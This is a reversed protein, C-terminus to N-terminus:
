QRKRAPMMTIKGGVKTDKSISLKVDVDAIFSAPKGSSPQGEFRINCANFIVTLQTPSGQVPRNTLSIGGHGGPPIVASITCNTFTDTGNRLLLNYGYNEELLMNEAVCTVNYEGHCLGTSNRRSIFDRVVISCDEHASIGDDGCETATIHEFTVDEAHGHINFGDNIVHEININKIIWHNCTDGLAVGNQRTPIEINYDELKRNPDIAIYFATQSEVYTWQGLKLSATDVFPPLDGDCSRGMRNMQGNWRMFFRMMTADTSPLGAKLGPLLHDNRYVGPRVQKWDAPNLKEAGTFLNGQGDITIPKGPAGSKKYIGILEHIPFNVKIITVTDGAHTLSVAKAITKLPSTRAGTNANNGGVVDVYYNNAKLTGFAALHLLLALSCIKRIM